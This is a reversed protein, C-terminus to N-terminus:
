VSGAAAPAMGTLFEAYAAYLREFAHEWTHRQAYEQAQRAMGARLQPSALLLGVAQSFEERSRTVLGTCGDEVTCQPGGVDTVVAPVGSALAELVVLGYTDTRSPFAFVDMNAFARALEAGHLVGHFQAHRLNARLWGMEPGDGVISLCFNTHGSALLAAELQVLERVSKEPALRGAYGITLCDDARDRRGPHFLGLDVGHPLIRCPNGGASVEAMLDPNPVFILKPLRYYRAVAWRSLKVSLAAARERPVSPLWSLLRSTRLGAYRPLDTQWFALLPLGLKHAVMAGLIGADGPGTIQVFDARFERVRAMAQQLHRSFLLDFHHADDLAFSAASRPLALRAVPGDPEAALRASHQGGAYIVLWPIAHRRAYREFEQAFISVGDAQGFSDPFFAVRPSAM